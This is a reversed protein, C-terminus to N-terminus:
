WVVNNWSAEQKRKKLIILNVTICKLSRSLVNLLFKKNINQPKVISYKPM